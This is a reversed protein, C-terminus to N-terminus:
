HASDGIGTVDRPPRSDAARSLTDSQQALARRADIRTQKRGNGGRLVAGPCQAAPRLAPPHGILHLSRVGHTRAFRAAATVPQPPLLPGTWSPCVVDHRSLLCPRSTVSLQRESQAPSNVARRHKRAVSWPASNMLPPQPYRSPIVLRTATIAMSAKSGRRTASNQAATSPHCITSSSPPTTLMAGAWLAQGVISTAFTGSRLPAFFRRWRSRRASPLVASSSTLRSM